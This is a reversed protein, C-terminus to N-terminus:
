DANLDVATGERWADWTEPERWGLVERRLLDDVYREFARRAAPRSVAALWWSRELALGSDLKRGAGDLVARKVARISFNTRRALRRATEVAAEVLRAQPLVEHVLGIARAEEPSLLRAELLLELARARGVTRALRQTGGGGPMVGITLEPLGIAEADDAMYRVDCALALECGASLAPGNIAAVVAKDLRELRTCLAHLAQLDLMGALPTRALLRRAGPLRSLAAFGRYSGAALSPTLPLPSRKAGELMEAVDYHTVFLHEPKGTIVVAGLSADREIARLVDALDAVVTRDLLNRPPNDIRVIAVRGDRELEITRTTAM